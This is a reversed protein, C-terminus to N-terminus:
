FPPNFKALPNRQTAQDTNTYRHLETMLFPDSQKEQNQKALDRLQNELPFEFLFLIQHFLYLLTRLLDTRLFIRDLLFGLFQRRSQFGQTLRLVLQDTLFPHSGYPLQGLTQHVTDQVWQIIDIVECIQCRPQGLIEPFIQITLFLM